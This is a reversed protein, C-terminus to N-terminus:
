DHPDGGHGRRSRPGPADADADAAHLLREVPDRGRKREHRRPSEGTIGLSAPFTMPESPPVTGTDGPPCQCSSAAGSCFLVGTLNTRNTKQGLLADGPPSVTVRELPQTAIITYQSTTYPAALVEGSGPIM